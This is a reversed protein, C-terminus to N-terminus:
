SREANRSRALRLVVGVVFASGAIIGLAQLPNEKVYEETRIRVRRGADSAKLQLDSARQAATKKFKIARRQVDDAIESFRQQADEAVQSARERTKNVVDRASSKAREAGTSLEEGPQGAVEQARSKMVLLKGKGRRATAVARGVVNGLQVARDHLASHEPEGYARVAGTSGSTGPMYSGNSNSGSEQEYPQRHSPDPDYDPFEKPNRLVDNM